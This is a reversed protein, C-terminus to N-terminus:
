EGSSCLAAKIMAKWVSGPENYFGFVYGAEKMTSTPEEMVAIVTKARVRHRNSVPKNDILALTCAVREILGSM